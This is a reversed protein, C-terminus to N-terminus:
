GLLPYSAAIRCTFDHALVRRGRQLFVFSNEGSTQGFCAVDIAAAHRDFVAPGLIVGVSQRRQGGIQNATLHCHDNWETACRCRKGGLCRGL